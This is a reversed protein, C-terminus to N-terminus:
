EPKEIGPSNDYTGIIRDKAYQYRKGFVMHGTSDEEILGLAMVFDLALGRQGDSWSPKLRKFEENVWGKNAQFNTSKNIAISIEKLGPIYEAFEIAKNEIREIAQRRFTDESQIRRLSTQCEDFSREAEEGKRLAAGEAARLQEIQNELAVREGMSKELQGTLSDIKGQRDKLFELYKSEQSDITEYIKAAEAEDLKRKREAWIRVNAIQSRIWYWYANIGLNIVPWVFTWFAGFIAPYILFGDVVSNRDGYLKGIECVKQEYSLDSVVLLSLKWNILVCAVLAASVFPNGLRESMTVRISNITDQIV